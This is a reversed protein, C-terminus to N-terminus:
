SKEFKGEETTAGDLSEHEEPVGLVVVNDEGEKRDIVELFNQHKAIVEAQKDIRAELSEVKKNIAGNSDKVM